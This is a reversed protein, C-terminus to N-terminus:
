FALREVIIMGDKIHALEPGHHESEVKGRPEPSRTIVGGIRIQVPDLDFAYIRASSDGEAGAHATGRLTGLVIIDGSAIIEAGPNVDGMIVLNGEFVLRQGSRVTKKVTITPIFQDWEHRSFNSEVLSAPDAEGVIRQLSLGSAELLRELAAQEDETLHRAGIKLSIKAGRFFDRAEALRARLDELYPGFPGEEPIVLTLGHKYGKFVVSGAKPLRPNARLTRASM